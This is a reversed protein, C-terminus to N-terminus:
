GVALLWLGPCRNELHSGKRGPRAGNRKEKGAQEEELFGEWIVQSKAAEGPAWPKPPNLAAMSVPPQDPHGDQLGWSGGM